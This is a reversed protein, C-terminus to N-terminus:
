FSVIIVKGDDLWSKYVSYLINSIKGEEYLNWLKEQTNIYRYTLM